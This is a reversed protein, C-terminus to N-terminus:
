AVYLSPSVVTQFSLGDAEFNNHRWREVIRLLRNPPRSSIQLSKASRIDSKPEQIDHIGFIQYAHIDHMDLELYIGGPGVRNKPM